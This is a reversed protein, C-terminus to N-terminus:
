SPVSSAVPKVSTEAPTSTPLSGVFESLNSSTISANLLSATVRAVRKRDAKKAMSSHCTFFVINSLAEEWDEADVKGSSIATDVPLLDWGNAGPCLITTLRKIEAILAASEEDIPKGEEDVRGRNEADQKGEDRLTLAAIRPGATMLYHSGKASLTARTAALLRYSQDFVARSIPTHFAHVRVIDEHADKGDVKKTIRETVVPFVANLNEDISPNM